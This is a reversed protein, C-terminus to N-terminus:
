RFIAVCFTSLDQWSGTWSYQNITVGSSTYSSASISTHVGNGGGGTDDQASAITAYNADSMNTTFNVTYRGTGIYTVSSVNFSARITTSGSGNFNVWAKAIGSMGNQTALVGSGAKLTDVTLTGAM